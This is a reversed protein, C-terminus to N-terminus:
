DSGYVINSLTPSKYEPHCEPCGGYGIGNHNIRLVLRTGCWRTVTAKAEAANAKRTGASTKFECSQCRYFAGFRGTLERLEGDCGPCPIRWTAAHCFEPEWNLHDEVNNIGACMNTLWGDSAEADPNREWNKLHRRPPEGHGPIVVKLMRDRWWGFVAYEPHGAAFLDMAAQPTAAAYAYAASVPKRGASVPDGEGRVLLITRFEYTVAPATPQAQAAAPTQPGVARANV